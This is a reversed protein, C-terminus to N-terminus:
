GREYFVIWWRAQCRLFWCVLGFLTFGWDILGDWHLLKTLFSLFFVLFFLFCSIALVHLELTLFPFFIIFFVCVILYTVINCM